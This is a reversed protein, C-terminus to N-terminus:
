IIIVDTKYTPYHYIYGDKKITYYEVKVNKPKELKYAIEKIAFPNKTKNKMHEKIKIISKEKLHSVWLYGEYRYENPLNYFYKIYYTPNKRLLSAQHSYHLCEYGLWWPMIPKNKIKYLKMNNKYNRHITELIMENCYLKLADVNDIWMIVAPHNIFGCKENNKKKYIINIIQYAEVRQKLLRKSDLVKACKKFDSFPLFTNVMKM